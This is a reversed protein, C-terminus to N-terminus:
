RVELAAKFFGKLVINRQVLNNREGGSIKFALIYDYLNKQEITPNGDLLKEPEANNKLRQKDFNVYAKAFERANLKKINENNQYLLYFLDVFIWKQTLRKSAMANVKDLFTLIEDAHVMIPGYIDGGTINVYDDMLQPAKLDRKADHLCISVVHAFYDQHKFRASPIRANSFFPHLRAMGDIAHRLGTQVANRLEAPNLRVGMQMRSFLRSIEPERADHVIGVVVIFQTIRNRLNKHLDAYGKGGIVHKGIDEFEAPLTYHGDIFNWLSRLRQQGDVVEYRYPTEQACKSLYIMPIDYGRLISDILLAQKPEPWVPGRQWAPNLHIEDRIDILEKLKKPEHLIKM